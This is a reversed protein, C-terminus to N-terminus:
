RLPLRPTVSLSLTTNRIDMGPVGFGTLPNQFLYNYRKAHTLEASIEAQPLRVLGRVGGLLSVDHALFTIGTPQRYFADNDWRIRGLFLGLKWQSASYDAGIWQSSAGPGIAAGIVQGRQTYGQVVSRSTYYGPTPRDRFTPNQELYTLEGQLRVIRSSDGLPRAWQLGLTYGQTHNPATLVERTSTPLAVRAWEGYVELGDDPFIWRGFLSFLQESRTESDGDATLRPRDWRTFVDFARGPVAGSGRVPAYVSRALGITLDPEAAPRFTLALASISRIDNTSVTDFFLSETLGGVLWKAELTGGRTRLPSATRLFLHPIGAAHNSMVIANRVGPGWWQNETSAGAAVPGARVTFSSQGPSLLTFPETGFRLPLDASVPGLYWSPVFASRHPAESPITQYGRNRARILEPAFMLEVPGYAARLGALLRTTLGRGAWMAGDNLSYPLDSNWVLALEPPVVAWRVKGPAGDLPPTLTSPSRILFGDTPAQGLIQLLRLRDEQVSGMMTLPQVRTVAAALSDPAQARLSAGPLLLVPLLVALLWRHVFPM